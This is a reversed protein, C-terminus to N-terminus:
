MWKTKEIFKQVVAQVQEENLSADVYIVTRDNVIVPKRPINRPVFVPKEKELFGDAWKKEQKMREDRKRIAEAKRKEQELIKRSSNLCSFFDVKKVKKEIKKIESKLPRKLKLKNLQKRITDANRNLLIALESNTKDIYNLTLTEIDSDTWHKYDRDTKKTHKM